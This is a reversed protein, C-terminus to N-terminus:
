KFQTSLYLSKPAKSKKSVCVLASYSHLFSAITAHYSLPTLFQKLSISMWKLVMKHDNYYTMRYM